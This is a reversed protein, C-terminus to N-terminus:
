NLFCFFLLKWQYHFSVLARLVIFSFYSYFYQSYLILMWLHVFIFSILSFLLVDFWIHIKCWSYTFLRAVEYCELSMLFKDQFVRHNREVWNQGVLIHMRRSPIVLCRTSIFYLSYNASLWLSVAALFVFPQAGWKCCSLYFLITPYLYLLPIWKQLTSACNNLILANPNGIINFFPFICYVIWLSM